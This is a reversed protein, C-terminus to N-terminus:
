SQKVQKCHKSENHNFKFIITKPKQQIRETSELLYKASVEFDGFIKYLNAIKAALEYKKAAICRQYCNSARLKKVIRKEEKFYQSNSKFCNIINAFHEKTYFSCDLIAELNFKQKKNLEM